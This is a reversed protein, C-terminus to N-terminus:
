PPMAIPNAPPAPTSTSASSPTVGPSIGSSTTDIMRATMTAIEAICSAPPM